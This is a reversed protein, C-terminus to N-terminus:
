DVENDLGIKEIYAGRQDAPLAMITRLEEEILQAQLEARAVNGVDLRIGNDALTQVADSFADQDGANLAKRIRVSAQLVASARANELDRKYQRKEQAISDNMSKLGTVAAFLDTGMSQEMDNPDPLTFNYQRQLDGNRDYKNVLEMASRYEENNGEMLAMVAARTAHIRQGITRTLPLFQEVTENLKVGAEHLRQPDGYGMTSNALEAMYNASVGLLEVGMSRADSLRKPAYGLGVYSSMDIGFETAAVRQIWGSIMMYRHFYGPNKLSMALLAETQKPIFSLFQTAGAGLSRSLTSIMTPKGLVGFMHNIEETYRIAEALIANGRGNLFADQVNAFGQARALRHAAAHFGVGRIYAETQNVSPYGLGVNSLADNLKRFAGDEMIKAYQKTTGAARALAQGEATSMISAHHLTSLLGSEGATTAMSTSFAMPFYHPTATLQAAYASSTVGMVARGATNPKYTIDRLGPLGTRRLGDTINMAFSDFASGWKSPEGKLLSNIRKTEGMIWSKHNPNLAAFERAMSDMDMLLPELHMKRSMGAAYMEAIAGLDQTYAPNGDGGREMLHRARVRLSPNNRVEQIFGPNNHPDMMWHVYGEIYKDTEYIGQKQAYFDLTQRYRRVANRASEPLANVLTMYEPADEATNLVAYMADNLELDVMELSGDKKLRYTGSEELAQRFSATIRKFEVDKARLGSQIRGWMEPYTSQLARAPERFPFLVQAFIGKTTLASWSEPYLGRALVDGAIERVTRNWQAAEVNTKLPNGGAATWDFKAAEIDDMARLDALERLDARIDAEVSRRFKNALFVGKRREFAVDKVAEPDVGRREYPGPQYKGKGKRGTGVLQGNSDLGYGTTKRELEHIRGKRAKNAAKAQRRATRNLAQLDITGEMTVGKPRMAWATQFKAVGMDAPALIEDIPRGNIIDQASTAWWEADEPGYALREAEMSEDWHGVHLISQGEEDILLARTAHDFDVPTDVLLEPGETVMRKGTFRSVVTPINEPDANLVFEYTREWQRLLDEPLNKRAGININRRMASLLATKRKEMVSTSTGLEDFAQADIFDAYMEDQRPVVEMKDAQNAANKSSIGVDAEDMADVIISEVPHDKLAQSAMAEAQDRQSKMQLMRRRNAPTDAKTVAKVADDYARQASELYDIIAAKSGTRRAIAGLVRSSSSAPAIRRAVNLANAPVDAMGIIPDLFVDMGLGVADDVTKATAAAAPGLDNFITDYYQQTFGEIQDLQGALVSPDDSLDSGSILHAPLVFDMLEMGRESEDRSFAMGGLAGYGARWAKLLDTGVVANDSFMQARKQAEEISEPRAKLFALLNPAPVGSSLGSMAQAHVAPDRLNRTIDRLTNSTAEWWENWGHTEERTAPDIWTPNFRAVATGWSEGRLKGFLVQQPAILPWMTGTLRGGYTALFGEIGTLEQRTQRMDDAFELPLLAASERIEARKKNINGYDHSFRELGELKDKPREPVENFVSVTDVGAESAIDRAASVRGLDQQMPDVEAAPSTTGLSPRLAEVEAKSMGWAKRYAAEEDIGATMLNKVMVDRKDM